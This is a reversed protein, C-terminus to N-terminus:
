TCGTFTADVADRYAALAAGESSFGIDYGGARYTVHSYASLDDGANEAAWLGALMAGILGADVEHPALAPDDPPRVTGSWVWAEGTVPCERRLPVRPPWGM